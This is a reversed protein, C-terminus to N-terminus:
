AVKYFHRAQMQEVFKAQVAAREGEPVLNFYKLIRSALAPSVKGEKQGDEYMNALVVARNRTRLAADEIDNFLEFGQFRNTM